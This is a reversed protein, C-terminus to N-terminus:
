HLLEFAEDLIQCVIPDQSRDYSPNWGTSDAGWEHVLDEDLTGNYRSWMLWNPENASFPREADWCVDDWEVVVHAFNVGNENWNDLDYPDLFSERLTNNVNHLDATDEMFQDGYAVVVANDIGIKKMRKLLQSAFFVCGGANICYVEEQIRESIIEMCALFDQRQVISNM